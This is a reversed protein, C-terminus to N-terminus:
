ASLKTGYVEKYTKFIVGRKQAFELFKDLYKYGEPTMAQVHLVLIFPKHIKSMFLFEEETKVFETIWMNDYWGHEFRIAFIDADYCYGLDRLAKKVEFNEAWYPPRFGCIDDGFVDKLIKMGKTLKNEATSYNILGFEYPSHEYGHQAIEYGKSQEQKILNIWEQNSTIPYKGLYNPIVFLTATANYKDIISFLEKHKDISYVPSIDDITIIVVRKSIEGPKKYLIISVSLISLLCVTLIILLKFIKKM